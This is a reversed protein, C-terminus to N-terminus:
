NNKKRENNSWIKYIQTFCVYVGFLKKIYGNKTYKIENNEYLKKPAPWVKHLLIKSKFNKDIIKKLNKHNSISIVPTLLFGKKNLYKKANLIVRKSLKIGNEGCEHPIYKNYWFKNAIKEDIASIDNIIIDFKEYSWNEFINSKRVEGKIKNLKINKNIMKVADISYDSFYIDVKSKFKKKIFIGIVGSGSGLDLIKIKKKIKYKRFVEILSFTTLNPEFVKSNRFLKIKLNEIKIDHINKTM